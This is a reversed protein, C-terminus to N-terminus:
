PIEWIAGIALAASLPPATWVPVGNLVIRVPKVAVLGDLHLFFALGAVIPWDGGVRLGSALFLGTDVRGQTVGRSGARVDGALLLGCGKVADFHLCPVLLGAWLTSHVSAGGVDHAFPADFRGELALSLRQRRARAFAIAGLAPEPAAGVSGAVGAGFGFRWPAALTTREQPRTPEPATEDSPPPIPKAPQEAAVRRPGKEQEAPAAPLSGADSESVVLDPNIALSVALAIAASLEACHGAGGEIRRLGEPIGRDDVLTILGILDAGKAVVEVRITRMAAPGFPDDGLRAVIAARLESEPPCGSVGTSEVYTLRASPAALLRETALGLAILTAGFAFVRLM